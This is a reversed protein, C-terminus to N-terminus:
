GESRDIFEAYALHTETETERAAALEDDLQQESDFWVPGNNTWDEGGDSFAIRYWGEGNWDNDAM